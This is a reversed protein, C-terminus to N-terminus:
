RAQTQAHPRAREVNVSQREPPATELVTEGAQVYGSVKHTHHEFDQKILVLELALNGVQKELREIRMHAERFRLKISAEMEAYKKDIAKYLGAKM